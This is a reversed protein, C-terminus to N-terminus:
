YNYIINIYYFYGITKYKTIQRRTNKLNWLLVIFINLFLFKFIIKINIYNPLNYSYDNKWTFLILVVVSYIYDQQFNFQKQYGYFHM